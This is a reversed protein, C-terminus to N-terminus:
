SSNATIKKAASSPAHERRNATVRLEKADRHREGRGM